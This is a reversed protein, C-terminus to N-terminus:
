RGDETQTYMDHCLPADIRRLPKRLLAFLRFGEAEHPRCLEVFDAKDLSLMAHGNFNAFKHCVPGFSNAQLWRKVDSSSSLATVESPAELAHQQLLGSVDVGPSPFLSSAPPLAPFGLLAGPSPAAAAVAVSAQVPTGMAVPPPAGPAPAGSHDLFGSSNASSLLSGDGMTGPKGHSLQFQAGLVDSLMTRDCRPKFKQPESSNQVAEQDSKMRREAGNKFVKILCALVQSSQRAGVLGHEAVLAFTVGTFFMTLPVGVCVPFVIRTEEKRHRCRYDAGEGRHKRTQKAVKPVGEGIDQSIPASVTSRFAQRHRATGTSCCAETRPRRLTSSGM